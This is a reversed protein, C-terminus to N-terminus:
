KTAKVEKTKRMYVDKAKESKHGNENLDHDSVGKAKIDHFTFKKDKGSSALGKDM